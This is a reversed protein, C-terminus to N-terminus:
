DHEPRRNQTTPYLVREVVAVHFSLGITNVILPAEEDQTFAIYTQERENLLDNGIDGSRQDFLSDWDSVEPM